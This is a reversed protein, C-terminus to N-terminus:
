CRQQAYELIGALMANPSAADEQESRPRLRVEVHQLLNAGEGLTPEFRERENGHQRMLGRVARPGTRAAHDRVEDLRRRRVDIQRRGLGVHAPRRGHDVGGDRRHDCRAQREVGHVVVFEAVSLVSMLAMAGSMLAVAGARGAGATAVADGVSIELSNLVQRKQAQIPGSKMATKMTKQPTIPWLMGGHFGSRGAVFTACHNQAAALVMRSPMTTAM